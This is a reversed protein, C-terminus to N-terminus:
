GDRGRFTGPHSGQAEALSWPQLDPASAQSGSDRKRRCDNLDTLPDLIAGGAAAVIVWVINLRGQAAYAAATVLATEGPLPIGFSEVGVLLFLFLYGYSAVLHSITEHM